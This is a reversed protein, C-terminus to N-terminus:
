SVFNEGDHSKVRCYLFGGCIDAFVKVQGCLQHCKMDQLKSLVTVVYLNTDTVFTYLLTLLAFESSFGHNKGDAHLWNNAVTFDSLKAETYCLLLVRNEYDSDADEYM